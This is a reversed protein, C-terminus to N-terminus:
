RKLSSSQASRYGAASTRLKALDDVAGLATLALMLALAVQIFPNALDACLVTSAAIGAVIFLGGMTPTWQKAAHLEVLQPSASKIPERFRARLWAILRGGLLVALVFSLAAALAARSTIKGLHVVGVDGEAFLSNAIWALM